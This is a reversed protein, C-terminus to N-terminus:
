RVGAPCNYGAICRGRQDFCEGVRAPECWLEAGAIDLDLFIVRDRVASLATECAVRDLACIRAAERGEISAVPQQNGTEVFGVSGCLVFAAALVPPILPSKM